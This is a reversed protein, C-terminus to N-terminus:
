QDIMVRFRVSGELGPQLQGTLTWMLDGARGPSPFTALRCASISQPLPTNCGGSVFTTYAPTVDKFNKSMVVDDCCAYVGKWDVVECLHTNERNSMLTEPISTM